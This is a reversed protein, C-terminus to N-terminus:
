LSYCAIFCADVFTTFLIRLQFLLLGRFWGNVMLCVVIHCCRALSWEYGLTDHRTSNTDV